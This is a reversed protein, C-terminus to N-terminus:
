RVDFDNDGNWLRLYSFLATVLTDRLRRVHKTNAIAANRRRTRVMNRNGVPMPKSLMISCAEGGLSVNNRCVRNWLHALYGYEFGIYDNVLLVASDAPNSLTNCRTKNRSVYNLKYYRRCTNCRKSGHTIINWDRGDWVTAQASRWGHVTLKSSKCYVCNQVGTYRVETDGVVRTMQDDSPLAELHSGVHYTGGGGQLKYVDDEFSQDTEHVLAYFTLPMPDIGEMFTNIDSHLRVGVEGDYVHVLDDEVSITIAFFHATDADHCVFSTPVRHELDAPGFVPLDRHHFHKLYVVESVPQSSQQLNNFDWVSFPGDDGLLPAADAGICRIADLLCQGRGPLKPQVANTDYSGARILLKAVHTLTPGRINDGEWPKVSLGINLQISLHELKDCIRLFQCGSECSFVAGDFMWVYPVSNISALEDAVRQTNAAEDFSLIAALRSFDPKKRDTYLMNFRAYKPLALLAMAGKRVQSALLRLFPIDEHPVSGFRVCLIATKAGAPECGRYAALCSRWNSHFVTSLKVMLYEDDNYISERELANFFLRGYCDDQDVDIAHGRYSESRTVGSQKQMSVGMAIVRAYDATSYYSETVCTLEPRGEVAAGEAELRMIFSNLAVLKHDEGGDGHRRLRAINLINRCVGRPIVTGGSISEPTTEEFIDALDFDSKKQDFQAQEEKLSFINGWSAWSGFVDSGGNDLMSKELKKYNLQLKRYASITEDWQFLHVSSNAIAHEIRELKTQKGKTSRQKKKLGSVSNCDCFIYPKVRVINYPIDAHANKVITDVEDDDGQVDGPSPQGCMKKALWSTDSALQESISSLNDLYRQLDETTNEKAVPHVYRRFM